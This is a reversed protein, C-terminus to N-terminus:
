QLCKKISLHCCMNGARRLVLCGMVGGGCSAPAAGGHLLDLLVDGPGVLVLSDMARAALGAHLGAVGGRAAAHAARASPASASHSTGASVLAESASTAACTTKETRAMCLMCSVKANVITDTCQQNNGLRSWQMGKKVM